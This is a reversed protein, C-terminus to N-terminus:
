VLKRTALINKYETLMQAVMGLTPQKREYSMVRQCQEVKHNFSVLYGGELKEISVTINPTLRITTM